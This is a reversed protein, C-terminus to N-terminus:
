GVHDQPVAATTTRPRKGLLSAPLPFASTMSVLLAAFYGLSQILLVAIWVSLDPNRLEEPVFSPNGLAWAAAILSVFLM